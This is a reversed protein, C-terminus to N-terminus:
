AVKDLNRVRFEIECKGKKAGASYTWELLLRHTEDAPASTSVIDNDEPALTITWAGGASITGPGANLINVASRSNIIPLGDIVAYLTMTFATLQSSGLAAGTEDVLTGSILSTSGEPTIDYLTTRPSAAM